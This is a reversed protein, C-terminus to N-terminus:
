GLAALAPELESWAGFRPAATFSAAASREDSSGYSAGVFRLFALGNAAAAEADHVRDGIVVARRAGFHALARAAMETKSRIGPTSLCLPLEIRAGLGTSRMVAELYFDQCNSAVALRVGRARVADLADLAGPFLLDPGLEERLLRSEEEHLWATLLEQERADADPALGALLERWPLGLLADTRERPPAEFAHGRAEALRRLVVTAARHFLASSRVLTGDLDLILADVPSRPSSACPMDEM